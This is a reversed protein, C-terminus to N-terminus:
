DNLIYENLFEKSDETAVSLFKEDQTDKVVIVFIEPNTHRLLRGISQLFSKNQNDLQTIIGFPTDVLNANERLMQVTFLKNIKRTNFDNILDAVEKKSIGSHIALDGGINIAQEISGTFVIARNNPKKNIINLLQKITNTKCEALFRKRKTAFQLAINKLYEERLSLYKNFYNTFNTSYYNYIEWETAKLKMIYEKQGRALVVRQNFNGVLVTKAKKGGKTIVLEKNRNVKDLEIYVINVIPKPLLGSEISDQLTFEDIRLKQKNSLKNYLIAALNHIVVLRDDPITASLLIIKECNVNLNIHDVHKTNIHHCEDIIINFEGSWKHFSAYTTFRYNSIDIKHKIFEKKWNVIHTLEWCVILWKKDKELQSMSIAQLSKGFGTAYKLLHINYNHYELLNNSLAEERM